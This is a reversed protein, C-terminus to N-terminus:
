GDRGPERRLAPPLTLSPDPSRGDAVAAYVDLFQTAAAVDHVRAVTRPLAALLPLTALTGPDRRSPPTGTLAGIFDKRSVAVLLRLGFREAMVPLGQLLRISQAPTKSLDVGPDLLVRQAPLGRAEVVRLREEFWACCDGVVDDYRDPDLVKNKVGAVNYTLVLDVGAAACIEALEVNVLGSYDNVLDAGAAVAARAVEPKYTDVSTRVGAERLGALVPELRAIEEGADVVPTAPSASEAGVDVIAAGARAMEVGRAVTAAVDADGGPDSFSDTNVNLIGM